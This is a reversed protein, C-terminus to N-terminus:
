ELLSAHEISRRSSFRRANPLEPLTRGHIRFSVDVKYGAISAPIAARVKAFAEEFEVGVEFHQIPKRRCIMGMKVGDIGVEIAGSSNQNRPSIQNHIRPFLSDKVKYIGM